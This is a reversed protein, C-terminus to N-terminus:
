LLSADDDCNADEANDIDHDEDGNGDDDDDEDGTHDGNRNGDDFSMLLLLVAAIGIVALTSPPLSM